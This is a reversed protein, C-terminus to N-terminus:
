TSTRANESVGAAEFADTVDLYTQSRWIRGDRLTMVLEARRDVPAGSARGRGHFRM